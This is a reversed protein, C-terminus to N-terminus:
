KGGLEALLKDIKSNLNDFESRTVMDSNQATPQQIVEDFNFERMRQPVGNTDTGKIWFQKSNFDILLVTYGAAVPYSEAGQRGSVFVAMVSNTYNYNNNNPYYGQM